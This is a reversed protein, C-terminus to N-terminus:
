MVGTFWPDDLYCKLGSGPTHVRGNCTAGSGIPILPTLRRELSGCGGVVLTESGGTMAGLCLGVRYFYIFGKM